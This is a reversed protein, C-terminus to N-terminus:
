FYWSFGRSFVVFRFMDYFIVLFGKFGCNYVFCILGLVRLADGFFDLLHGAAEWPALGLSRHHRSGGCGTAM